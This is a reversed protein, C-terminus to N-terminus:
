GLWRGNRDMMKGVEEDGSKMQAMKSITLVDDQSYVLSKGGVAFNRYLWVFLQGLTGVCPSSSSSPSEAPWSDAAVVLYVLTKEHYSGEVADRFSDADAEKPTEDLLFLSIGGEASDSTMM